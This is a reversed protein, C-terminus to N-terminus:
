ECFDFPGLVFWRQSLVPACGSSEHVWRLSVESGLRGSARTQSLVSSYVLEWGDDWMQRLSGSITDLARAVEQGPGQQQASDQPPRDLPPLGTTMLGVVTQSRDGSTTVVLPFYDDHIRSTIAGVGANIPETAVEAVTMRGHLQLMEVLREMSLRHGGLFHCVSPGIWITGMPFCSDVDPCRLPRYGQCEACKNLSYGTNRVLPGQTTRGCVACAADAELVTSGEASSRAEDHNAESTPPGQM